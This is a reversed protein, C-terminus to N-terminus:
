HGQKLYGESLEDYLKADIDQFSYVDNMSEISLDTLIALSDASM